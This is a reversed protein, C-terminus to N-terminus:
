DGLPHADSAGLDNLISGLDSDTVKEHLLGNLMSLQDARENVAAEPMGTEQDWHLFAIIHELLVMERDRSKLAKLANDMM